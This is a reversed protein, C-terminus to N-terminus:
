GLVRWFRQADKRRLTPLNLYRTLLLRSDRHGLQLQLAPLNRHTLAHYSAFTHRLVDPIWRRSRTALEAVQRLRLWRKEWRPPCILGSRAQRKLMRTLSPCLEVRRAGGTKSHRVAITLVGEECHVDAWRLRAADCGRLPLGELLYKTHAHKM